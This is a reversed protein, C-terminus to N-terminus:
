EPTSPYISARIADVIDPEGSFLVFALLLLVMTWVYAKHEDNM